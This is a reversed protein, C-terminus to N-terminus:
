MQKKSREGGDQSERRSKGSDEEEGSSSSMSSNPTAPAEGGGGMDGVGTPNLAGDGSSIAESSPPSSLGFARALSTYDSPGRLCDTFRMYSNPDFGLNAYQTYNVQFPDHYHYLDGPEDSM